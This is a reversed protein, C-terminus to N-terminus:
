TERQEDVSQPPQPCFRILHRAGEPPYSLECTGALERTVFGQVLETGISPPGPTRVPPGGTETWRLTLRPCSPPPQAPELEWSIEVRGGPASHAGYKCSNTYWEALVMMLPLAYKASLAVSPGTALAPIDFPALHRMADLASEVLAKLDLPRWSSEALLRHTHAMATLRGEMARSFARVDPARDAMVDVLALLSALNNRVRHEVERALRRNHEALKRLDDNAQTLLATREAVRQELSENLARMQQEAAKRETIDRAYGAIGRLKGDADQWRELAVELHMVGRGEVHAVTEVREGVGTEMVRRKIAAQRLHETRGLFIEDSQGLVDALTLPAEVKSVWVIRLDTDQYFMSDPSNEIMQRFRTESEARAREAQRQETVDISVGTLTAKGEADLRRRCVDRVWREQGDPRVARFECEVPGDETLARRVTSVVVDRDEPHVYNLLEDADPAPVGYTDTMDGAVFSRDTAPDWEWVAIGSAELVMRLRLLASREAEEARRRDSLDLVFVPCLRSERDFAYPALMVPVRTGDKRYYEKEFPQCAGRELLERVSRADAEAQDPPTMEDWRLRGALLDERTYGVTRLFAENAELIGGDIDSVIMGVVNSEFMRRLRADSARLAENAEVLAREANRRDTIDLVFAAGVGTAADFETAAILVPVRGGDKRLYEKEFPECQGTEVLQRVARADIDRYEPPTLDSWKLRGAEVDARAYGLMRLLAGNADLIRGDVHAIIMGLLESNFIRRFRQESARLADSAALAAAEAIRRHTVDVGTAIVHEVAGDAAGSARMVANTWVIRRRRGEKTIWDHEVEVPAEGNVLRAFQEAVWSRDEPASFLLVVNRGRVEEFTYGTSRECARNFRVIRGARDLVVVLSTITDLIVANLDTQSTAPITSPM